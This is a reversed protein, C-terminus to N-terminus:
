LVVSCLIFYRLHSGIEDKWTGSHLKWTPHLQTMAFALMVRPLNQSSFLLSGEITIVWKLKRSFCDVRDVIIEVTFIAHARSM